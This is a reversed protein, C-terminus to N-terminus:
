QAGAVAAMLQKVAEESSMAGNFHNTVVDYIANKV